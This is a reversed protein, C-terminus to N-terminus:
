VATGFQLEALMRYVGEPKASLEEHTGSEVAQGNRLVLIRDADKVTALRHAIIISTRGHMLTDLAEQVLRESESDLSSTAEDLVLIAPDALIARAIAIRQRQGGSLKIGRDGVLTEYGEPFEEIFAHANAKKAAAVIEDETAGTKGYAINDRISGGFLLVEQPVIAIQARRHRLPIETSPTGDFLVSGEDPDYYGLLLGIVTSKGAGSPGVIAIREGPAAKFSVGRLVEVDPRSPYRFRVGRLEVEGRLRSPEGEGSQDEPEENLYDRIRDTAGLAGQLQSFVEPLSGMAAGVFVSFLVFRLFEESTLRGDRLMGAGYWVVFAVTGFLVFIIFAIFFAKAGASRLASTLYREIATGYRATEYPENTFAKVNAVGQLTEEVIVNSEALRDQADRTFGRIRRGVLAVTLIVVPICALMVLALKWSSIFVFVLGGVLIVGHRVLQPLTVMLADRMLMLDSALRSSLEGVRRESFFAMPLRILRGYTERRLDALAREGAFNLWRIRFFAILAQLALAGVLLLMARNVKEASVDAASLSVSGGRLSGGAIESMMYPFVLSLGATFFLGLIAPIFWKRYPHLYRFLWAADAAAKRDLKAKPPDDSSGGPSANDQPRRPM